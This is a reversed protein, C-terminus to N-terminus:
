KASERRIDELSRDTLVSDPQTSEPNRRGDANSDDLKFILWEEQDGKKDMRIMAYGGALKQGHLEFKFSGDKLAKRLSKDADEGILEYEGNDWVMVTGAGYEDEPIVGEFDAYDMPHDDTSIALRKENAAMSLGKPVAWSILVDGDSLRFDYHLNTAQHKQIVFLNKEGRPRNKDNKM